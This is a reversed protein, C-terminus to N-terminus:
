VNVKKMGAAARVEDALRGVEKQEDPCRAAKWAAQLYAIVKEADAQKM